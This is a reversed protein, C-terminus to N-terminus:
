MGCFWGRNDNGTIRSIRKEQAASLNRPAASRPIVFDSPQTTASFYADKRGSPPWNGDASTGWRLRRVVAWFPFDYADYFPAGSHQSHIAHAQSHVLLNDQKNRNAQNKRTAAAGAIGSRQLSKGRDRRL